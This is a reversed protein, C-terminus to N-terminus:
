SNGLNGMALYRACALQVVILYTYSLLRPLKSVHAHLSQQCLCM